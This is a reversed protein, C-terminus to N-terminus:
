RAKAMVVLEQCSDYIAELMVETPQAQFAAKAALAAYAATVRRQCCAYEAAAAAMAAAMLVASAPANEKMMAKALNSASSFAAHLKIVVGDSAWPPAQRAVAEARTLAREAAQLKRISRGRLRQQLLPQVLRACRIAFAVRAWQPLHLLDQRTPLCAKPM